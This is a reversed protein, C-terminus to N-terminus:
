KPASTSPKGCTMENPNATSSTTSSAAGASGRSGACRTRRAGRSVAAGADRGRRVTPADRRVSLGGDVPRCLQVRAARLRRTSRAGARGHGRPEGARYADWEELWPQAARRSEHVARAEAETGRVLLEPTWSKVIEDEDRGVDRCHGQLVERKHKWEDPKGGFNSVDAHRAVVRLTIQEGSGGIWVPPHPDQLPKPDCQAGTVEYYRGQYHADPESWMLKVIEVAERLM